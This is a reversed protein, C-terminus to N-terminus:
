FGNKDLHEFYNYEFMKRIAVDIEEKTVENVIITNPESIYYGSCEQEREFDQKLRKMSTIYIKYRKDNIEVIVDRRYGRDFAEMDDLKTDNEYIVKLNM